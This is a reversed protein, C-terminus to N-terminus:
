WRMLPQACRSVCTWRCARSSLRDHTILSVDLLDGLLRTMQAAQRNLVDIARQRTAEDAGPHSLLSTASRVAYLPTRLEHSVLALFRERMKSAEILAQAAQKRATMDRAVSRSRVVGQPSFTYDQALVQRYTPAAIRPSKLVYRRHASM